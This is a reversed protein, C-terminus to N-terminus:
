IRGQLYDDWLSKLRDCFASTDGDGSWRHGNLYVTMSGAALPPASDRCSQLAAEPTSGQFEFSQDGVQGHWRVRYSLSAMDEVAMNHLLGCVLIPRGRPDPTESLPIPTTSAHNLSLMASDISTMSSVRIADECPPVLEEPSRAAIHFDRGDVNLAARYRRYPDDGWDEAWSWVQGCIQARTTWYGFRKYIRTRPGGNMSVFIEDVSSLPEPRNALFELCGQEVQGADSATRTAMSEDAELSMSWELPRYSPDRDAFDNAAWRYVQGCVSQPTHWWSPQNRVNHEPGNNLTMWIDDTKGTAFYDTTAAICASRLEDPTSGELPEFTKDDLRLVLVLSPTRGYIEGYTTAYVRGCISQPTRWYHPGNRHSSSWGLNVTVTIDDVADPIPGLGELCQGYIAQPSDGTFRRAAATELTVDVVYTQPSPGGGTAAYAFIRGCILEATRWYSPANHLLTEPEGNMAIYIDDVSFVQGSSALEALCAERVAEPTEGSWARTADNELRATLM